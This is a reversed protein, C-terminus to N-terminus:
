TIGSFTFLLRSESQVTHLKLRLDPHPRLILLSFNRNHPAWIGKPAMKKLYSKLKYYNFIGKSKVSSRRLKGKLLAINPM